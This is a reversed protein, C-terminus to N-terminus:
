SGEGWTDKDEGGDAAFITFFYYGVVIIGINIDLLLLFCSENLM